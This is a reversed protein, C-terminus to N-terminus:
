LSFRSSHPRLISTEPVENDMSLLSSHITRYHSLAEIVQYIPVSINNRLSKWSVGSRTWEALSRRSDVKCEMRPGLQIHVPLVFWCYLPRM